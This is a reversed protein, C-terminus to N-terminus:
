IKSLFGKLLARDGQVAILYAHDGESWAATMWGQQAAFEPRQSGPLQPFAGRDTVFLHLLRGDKRWFCILTVDHGHFRLVRCGAPEMDRVKEPIAFRSPARAKDLYDMLESLRKSQMELNPAVKVFSVMEDRYDAFSAAPRMTKTWAFVFALLVVAATTALGIVFTWNTRREALHTVLTTNTQSECARLAQKWRERTEDPVPVASTEDAHKAFARATKRMYRLQEEYRRCWCCILYHIRKKIRMSLPMPEDLSKSLIRVMERCKPTHKGIFIVLKTQWWNRRALVSPNGIPSPSYPEEAM